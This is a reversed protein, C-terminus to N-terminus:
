TAEILEGREDFYPTFLTISVPGQGGQGSITIQIIEGAIQGDFLISRLLGDSANDLTRTVVVPTAAVGNGGKMQAAYTITVTSAGLREYQLLLREVSKVITPNQFDYQRTAFWPEECNLNLPQAELVSSATGNFFGLLSAEQDGNLTFASQIQATSYTAEYNVAIPQGPVSVTVANLDDQNFKNAAPTLQLNFTLTGGAPIPNTGVQNIITYGKSALPTLTVSQPNSTRNSLMLTDSTVPVGAQILGFAVVPNMQVRGSDIQILRVYNDAPSAVYGVMTFQVTGGVSNSQIILTATEYFGAPGTPDFALFVNDSAGPALSIPVSSSFYFDGAPTGAGANITFGNFGFTLTANGTNTLTIYFSYTDGPAVIGFNIEGTPSVPSISLLPGDPTLPNGGPML